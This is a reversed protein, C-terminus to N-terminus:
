TGNVRDSGSREQAMWAGGLSAIKLVICLFKTTLMKYRNESLLSNSTFVIVNRHYRLTKFGVVLQFSPFKDGAQYSTIRFM